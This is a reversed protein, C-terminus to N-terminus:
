PSEQPTSVQNRSIWAPNGSTAHALSRLQDAEASTFVYSTGLIRGIGHSRAIRTLSDRTIGISEALQRATFLDDIDPM